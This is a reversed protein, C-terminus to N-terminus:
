NYKELVAIQKSVYDEEKYERLAKKQGNRGFKDRLNTDIIMRKLAKKLELYNKHQVVLGTVENDVVERCGRINTTIVPLSCMMAEIVTRPMGERWSPLCFIDSSYYVSRPDELFGTLILNEPYKEKFQNVFKNIGKFYDSKLYSGCIMLKINQFEEKILEEIAQLLEIHGKEEVLRAVISIVVTNNPINYKARCILKEDNTAPRFKKHNVGNSIWFLSEKNKFNKKKAFLYDEHSQMMISTTIKAFIFEILQHLYRKYFIMKDHFYFGHATYVVVPVRCIFAAIRTQLGVSPTHVNVVDFKNRRFFKILNIISVLYLRLSVRRTLKLDYFNIKNGTELIKKGDNNYAVTVEHGNLVLEECLKKIFIRYMLPINTIQCIKM